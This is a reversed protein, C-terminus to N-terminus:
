AVERNHKSKWLGFVLLGVQAASRLMFKIRKPVWRLDACPNLPHCPGCVHGVWGAFPVRYVKRKIPCAKLATGFLVCLCCLDINPGRPLINEPGHDAHYGKPIQTSAFM